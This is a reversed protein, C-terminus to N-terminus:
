PPPWVGIFGATLYRSLLPLLDAIEDLVIRFFSLCVTGLSSWISRHHLGKAYLGVNLSAGLDESSDYLVGHFPPLRVFIQPPLQVPPRIHLGGSIPARRKGRCSFVM